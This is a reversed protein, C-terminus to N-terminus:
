GEKKFCDISQKIIFIFDSEINFNFETTFKKDYIDFLDPVDTQDNDLRIEYSGGTIKALVKAINGITIKNGWSINHPNEKGFLLTIIIKQAAIFNYNIQRAQNAGANVKITKNLIANRMFDPIVRNGNKPYGPGYANSVRFSKSNCVIDL